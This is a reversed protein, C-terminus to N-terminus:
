ARGKECERVRVGDLRKECESSDSECVKPLRCVEAKKAAAKARNQEEEECPVIHSVFSHQKPNSPHPM